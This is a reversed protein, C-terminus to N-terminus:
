ISFALKWRQYDEMYDRAKRNRRIVLSDAENNLTYEKQTKKVKREMQEEAVGIFKPEIGAREAEYTRYFLGSLAIRQYSLTQDTRKVQQVDKKNTDTVDRSAETLKRSLQSKITSLSEKPDEGPKVKLRVGRILTDGAARDKRVVINDAYNPHKYFFSTLTMANKFAPIAEKYLPYSVGEYVIGLETLDVDKVEVKMAEEDGIGAFAMWLFCRYINDLTEENEAHFVKDFYVQLHFPNAVMQAKIKDLGLLNVNMIENCANPYKTLMCWKVYERLMTIGMWKSNTRMGLIKDLVPQLENSKMTCFDADWGNEYPELTDFIVKAFDATHLSRTYDRVFRKKMEENYM